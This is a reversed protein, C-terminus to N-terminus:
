VSWCVNTLPLQVVVMLEPDIGSSYSGGKLIGIQQMYLRKLEFRIDENKELKCILEKSLEIEELCKIKCDDCFNTIVFQNGFLKLPIPNEVDLFTALHTTELPINPLETPLRLAESTIENHFQKPTIMTSGAETFCELATREPDFPETFNYKPLNSYKFVPLLEIEKLSYATLILPNDGYDILKVKMKRNLVLNISFIFTTKDKENLLKIKNIYPVGQLSKSQSFNGSLSAGFKRKFNLYALFFAIIGLFMTLLQSYSRIWNISFQIKKFDEDLYAGIKKITVPFVELRHTLGLFYITFLIFLSAGVFIVINWARDENSIFGKKTSKKHNQYFLIVYGNILLFVLSLYFWRM